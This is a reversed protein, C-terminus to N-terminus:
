TKRIFSKPCTKSLNEHNEHLIFTQPLFQFIIVIHPNKKKKSYKNIMLSM